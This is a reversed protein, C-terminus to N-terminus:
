ILTNIIIIYEFRKLTFEPCTELIDSLRGPTAVVVHPTKSLALVQEVRDLGGVIVNLRLNM